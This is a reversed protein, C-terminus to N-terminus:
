ALAAGAEVVPKPDRLRAWRPREFLFRAGVLNAGWMMILPVIVSATTTILAMTGGDEIVGTRLLVTRTAIMPLFFALYVIISRAGLWSLRSGVAAVSSALVAISIIALAGLIGLTLSIGPLGALERSTFFGNVVAWLVLGALSVAKHEAVKRAIAFIQPAFAYGMYFYVFRATFENFAIWSTQIHAAEMLIGIALMVPVPIRRTLRVVLAFVPLMWIFWLTGFPEVFVAVLYRVVLGGVGDEAIMGPARLVFQISLWLIYFYAFHLIRRDVFRRWPRAIVASLFLGSIMFFDPMRFPRAFAVLDSMWGADGVEKEVGLTSHMMVVFIICIGKAVDVWEIRTRDVGGATQGSM